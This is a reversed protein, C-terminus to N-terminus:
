ETVPQPADISPQVTVEPGTPAQSIKQSEVPQTIGMTELDTDTAASPMKIGNFNVMGMSIKCVQSWADLRDADLKALYESTYKTSADAQGIIQTNQYITNLYEQCKEKANIEAQIDTM